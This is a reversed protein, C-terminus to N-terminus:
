SQQSCPELETPEARGYKNDTAALLGKVTRAYCNQSVFTQKAARVDCEYHKCYFAGV